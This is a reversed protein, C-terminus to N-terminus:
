PHRVLQGCVGLMLGNAAERAELDAQAAQLFKQATNHTRVRLM